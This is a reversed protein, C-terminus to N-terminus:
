DRGELSGISWQDELIRLVRRATSHLAFREDDRADGFAADSITITRRRIRYAIM